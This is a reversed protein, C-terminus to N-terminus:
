FPIKTLYLARKTQLNFIALELKSCIDDTTFKFTLITKTLMSLDVESIFIRSM